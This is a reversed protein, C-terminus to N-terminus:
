FICFHSIIWNMHTYFWYLTFWLLRFKLHFFRIFEHSKWENSTKDRATWVTNSIFLYLSYKIYEGFTKMCISLNNGDLQIDTGAEEIQNTPTRLMRTNGAPFNAEIYIVSAM